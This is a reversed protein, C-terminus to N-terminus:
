KTFSAFRYVKAEGDIIVGHVREKNPLRADEHEVPFLLYSDNTQYNGYPYRGYDRNFGTQESVIKADPYMQVMTNWDTEVLAIPEAKTGIAAGKVCDFRMQSWYSDTARDYPMLNTNFLLGSVGFTTIEGNVARDWGIGTGTLPCYTIAVHENGIDENIIEHWDLIEHPYVRTEGNVQIALVRDRLNLYDVERDDAGVMTPNLLAPIGDKGPGGGLVRNSPILWEPNTSQQSVFNGPADGEYIEVEEYFAPWTLWFGMLSHTTQLREGQRPGSIAYGFANWFSGDESRLIAPLQDQVVEFTTNAEAKFSVILDLTQSGVVLLPQGQFNDEILVLNTSEIIPVENEPNVQEENCAVFGMALLVLCLLRLRNM